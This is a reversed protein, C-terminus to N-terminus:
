FRYNPDSTARKPYSPYFAVNTSWGGSFVCHGATLLVNPAVVAASGSFNQGGQTFFLKGCTSYPYALPNAVPNGGTARAQAQGAEQKGASEGKHDDKAYGPAASGPEGKPTVAEAAGESKPVKPTPVPIASEMREPTWYEAAEAEQQKNMSGPGSGVGKNEQKADM